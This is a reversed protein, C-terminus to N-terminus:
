HVEQEGLDRVELVGRRRLAQAEVADDEALLEVEEGDHQHPQDVDAEHRVLGTDGAALVRERRRHLVDERDGDDRRAEVVEAPPDVVAVHGTERRDPRVAGVERGGRALAPDRPGVDEPGVQGVVDVEDEEEGEQQEAPRGGRDHGARQELAHPQRGIQHERHQEARRDPDEVGGPAPAEAAPQRQAEAEVVRDGGRDHVADAPANVSPTRNLRPGRIPLYVFSPKARVKLGWLM